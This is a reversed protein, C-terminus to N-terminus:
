IMMTCRARVSREAIGAYAKQQDKARQAQLWGFLDDIDEKSAGTEAMADRAMRDATRRFTHHAWKPSTLGELDFELDPEDLRASISYARKLAGIVHTYSSEPVLPM